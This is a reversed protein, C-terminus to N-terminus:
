VTWEDGLTTYDSPQVFVVRYGSSIDYLPFSELSFVKTIQCIKMSFVKVSREGTDKGFSM